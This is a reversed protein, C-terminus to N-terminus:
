LNHIIRPNMSGREAIIPNVTFKVGLNNCAYNSYNALSIKFSVLYKSGVILPTNLNTGFFEHSNFYPVGDSYIGVGCYANGDSPYQFGFVNSPVSVDGISCGNFYDPSFRSSNWHNANYIQSMSSPCNVTDEFSPNPVLNQGNLTTTYVSLLFIISLIRM